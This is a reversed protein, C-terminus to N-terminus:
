LCPRGVLFELLDMLDNHILNSLEIRRDVSFYFAAESLQLPKKTNSLGPKEKILDFPHPHECGPLERSKDVKLYGM